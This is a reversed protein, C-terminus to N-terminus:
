AIQNRRSYEARVPPLILWVFVTGALLAMVLLPTDGRGALRFYIWSGSGVAAFFLCLAIGLKRAWSRWRFVGWACFFAPLWGLLAHDLVFYTVEQPHQRILDPVHMTSSLLLDAGLLVFVAGVAWHGWDVVKNM